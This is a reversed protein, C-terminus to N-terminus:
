QFWNPTQTIWQSSAFYQSLNECIANRIAIEVTATVHMLTSGLRLTEQHLEISDEDSQTLNKLNRLREESLFKVIQAVDGPAIPM